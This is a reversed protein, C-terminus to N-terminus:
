AAVFAAVYIVPFAVVLWWLLPSYDEKMRSRQLRLSKIVLYPISLFIAAFNGLSLLGSWSDLITYVVTALLVAYSPVLVVITAQKSERNRRATRERQVEIPAEASM